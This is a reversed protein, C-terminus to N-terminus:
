GEEKPEEEDAESLRDERRGRIQGTSRGSLNFGATKGRNETIWGKTKKGTSPRFSNELYQKADGTGRYSLLTKMCEQAFNTLYTLKSTARTNQSM